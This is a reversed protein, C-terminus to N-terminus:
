MRVLGDVVPMMSLVKRGASSSRMWGRCTEQDWGFEVSASPRKLLRSDVGRAFPMEAMWDNVPKSLASQIASCANRLRLQMCDVWEACQDRTFGWKAQFDRVIIRMAQSCMAATFSMNPQLKWLSTFLDKAPEIYERMLVAKRVQKNESYMLFNNGLREVHPTLAHALDAASGGFRNRAAM